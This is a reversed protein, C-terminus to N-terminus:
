TVTIAVNASFTDGAEIYSITVSKIDTSTFNSTPYIYNTIERTTGDQLTATVIMGTPDFTEGITYSIKTPQNTIEIKTAKCYSILTGNSMAIIYNYGNQEDQLVVHKKGDWLPSSSPKLFTPRGLSDVSAVRLYDGKNAEMTLRQVPNPIYRDKIQRTATRQLSIVTAIDPATNFNIHISQLISVEFNPDSILRIYIEFPMSEAAIIFSRPDYTVTIEEGMLDYFLPDLDYEKGNMTFIIGDEPNFLIDNELFSITFSKNGDTGYTSLAMNDVLIDSKINTFPKNIIYQHHNPNDENWNSQFLHNYKDVLDYTIDTIKITYINSFTAKTLFQNLKFENATLSSTTICYDEGSEKGGYFIGDPGWTNRMFLSINGLYFINYEGLLNLVKAETIYTNNNIQVKYIHGQTLTQTESFIGTYIKTDKDSVSTTIELSDVSNALVSNFNEVFPKNKIFDLATNDTQDWNSQIQSKFDIVQWETPAGNEDIAKVAITQGVKASEPVPIGSSFNKYTVNVAKTTNIQLIVSTILNDEISTILFTATEATSTALPFYIGNWLALIYEGSTVATNIEISSMSAVSNSINVIKIGNEADSLDGAEWEIPKGNADITKVKAVQGISATIHDIPNTHTYLQTTITKNDDIHIFNSVVDGYVDVETYNFVAVETETNHTGVKVFDLPVGDSTLGMILKSNAIATSIESKSYNATKTTMDCTVILLKEASGANLAVENLAAVISSKDDTNLNTLDGLKTGVAKAEAAYGARTLTTDLNVTGTPTTSAGSSYVNIWKGNERVKIAM